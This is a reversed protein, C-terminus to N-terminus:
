HLFLLKPRHIPSSKLPYHLSSMEVIKMGRLRNESYSLKVRQDLIASQLEEPNEINFKAWFSLESSNLHNLENLTLKGAEALCGLM